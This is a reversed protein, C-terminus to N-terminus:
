KEEEEGGNFKRLIPDIIDYGEQYYIKRLRALLNADELYVLPNAQTMMRELQNLYQVLIVVAQTESKNMM